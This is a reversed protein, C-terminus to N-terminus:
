GPRFLNVGLEDEYPPVNCEVIDGPALELRIASIDAHVPLRAVGRDVLVVSLIEAPHKRCLYEVARLMSHGQYLVDDILLMTRGSLDLQAHAPDEILLTDPHLLTLDDAYRAIALEMVPLEPFRHDRTLVEGLMRALPVGRRRIGVLTVRGPASVLGATRRAMGALRTGVAAADYLGIRTEIPRM